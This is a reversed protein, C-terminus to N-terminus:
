SLSAGQRTTTPKRQNETRAWRKGAASAVWGIANALLKRFHENEYAVPDDGFQLYVIPSNRYHKVWGVLNSGPSHQWGDNAFLKGDRVALTASYFNNQEFHYDSRLLPVVSDEFVEYLYLEDTVPFRRPMGATVPHDAVVDVYYAVKHRYGSDQRATGRLEGPHYLFRGGIIEAYEPWAPWGAIAHHLFVMGFGRELLATLNEQVRLPPPSALAGGPGFRLGPIDYFVFADYAAALEPDFFVQAAPNEVQTWNIGPLADFMAAFPDRQYPHGKTFVLVDRDKDRKEDKEKDKDSM